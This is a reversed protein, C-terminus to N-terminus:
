APDSAIPPDFAVTYFDVSMTRADDTVGYDDRELQWWAGLPHYEALEAPIPDPSYSSVFYRAAHSGRHEGAVYAGVKRNRYSSPPAGLLYAVPQDDDHRRYYAGGWTARGITVLAPQVSGPEVAPLGDLFSAARAADSLLDDSLSM